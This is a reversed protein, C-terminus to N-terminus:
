KNLRGESADHKYQLALLTAKFPRLLGLSLLISLPAWILAHVWYPPTVFVELLVAGAVVVFGVIFIVFVAPGDGTDAKSLDLGCNTCEPAVTLFGDFLPGETCRPCRSLM